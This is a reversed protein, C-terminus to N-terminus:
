VLPALCTCSIYQLPTGLRFASPSRRHNRAYVNSCMCFSHPYYFSQSIPCYSNNRSLLYIYKVLSCYTEKKYMLQTSVDSLFDFLKLKLHVFVKRLVLNLDTITSKANELLKLYLYNGSIIAGFFLPFELFHIEFNLSITCIWLYFKIM